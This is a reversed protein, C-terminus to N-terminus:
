SSLSHKFCVFVDPHRCQGPSLSLPSFLVLIQVAEGLWRSQIKTEQVINNDPCQHDTCRCWRRWGHGTTLITYQCDLDPSGPPSATRAQVPHTGPTCTDGDVEPETDYRTTHGVGPICIEVHRLRTNRTPKHCTPHFKQIRWHNPGWASPKQWWQWRRMTEERREWRCVGDSFTAHFVFDDQPLPICDPHLQPHHEQISKGGQSWSAEHCFWSASVREVM